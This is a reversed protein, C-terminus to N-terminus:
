LFTNSSLFAANAHVFASAVSNNQTVNVGDITNASAFAANATNFASNVSNSQFENTVTLTNAQLVDFSFSSSTNIKSGTIEANKIGTNIVKTLSM